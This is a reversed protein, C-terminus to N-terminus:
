EFEIKDMIEVKFYKVKVSLLIKIYLLMIDFSFM